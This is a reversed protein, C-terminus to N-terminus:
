QHFFGYRGNNSQKTFKIYTADQELPEIPDINEMVIIQGPFNEQLDKYFSQVIEVPLSDAKISENLLSDVESHRDPPRYTIIPSDLVVFGPHPLKKNFCYRALSLTFAAHLISRVGKGHDSRKQDAAIIDPFDPIDWSYRVSEADPYGWRKLCNSIEVSFDRVVTISLETTAAIVETDKEEAIKHIMVEYTNKQRYMGINKEIESREVLLDRLTDQKPTVNRDLKIIRKQIEDKNEYLAEINKSLNNIREDLNKIIVLLDRHLNYTKCIESDVSKQFLTTNGQCNMNWHQDEPKAGCFVCVDKQFLGLLSGSEKIMDLRLLDNEYQKRLVEFRNRLVVGDSYEQSKEEIEDQLDKYKLVLEEREVVFGEITAAYENIVQNLEELQKELEELSSFEDLQIDIERIMREVIERRAGRLLKQEMKSSIVSLGSDDEGTLLLKIISKEKTRNVYQGTSGPPYVAQMMTEDILCLHMLDRFSLMNTVNNKNKRVQKEDLGIKALLFRSINDDSESSHQARLVFDPDNTTRSRIDSNYVSIKGRNKRIKRMLTICKGNSLKLGLIIHSYYESEPIEKIVKAGLVFNIADMIFTKGTDSPGHIITVRPHFEVSAPAVDNGVFTLHTFMLHNM